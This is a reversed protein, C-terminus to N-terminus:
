KDKFQIESLINTIIPTHTLIELTLIDTTIISQLSQYTSVANSEWRRTEALERVSLKGNIFEQNNLTGASKYAAANESATKLAVINNNIRVYLEVIELKLNDYEQEVMLQAKEMKLKQRKINRRYEFAEALPVSVNAGVNWYHQKSGVYQYYIPTMVDSATGYNDMVGYSYSGRASFFKLLSMRAQRLNQLEVQRDKDLSLIRANTRANEFLVSLPPLKLENYDVANIGTVENEIGYVSLSDDGVFYQAKAQQGLVM